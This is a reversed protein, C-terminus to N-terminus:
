TAWLIECVDDSSYGLMGLNIMRYALIAYYEDPFQLVVEKDGDYIVINLINDEQTMKDIDELAIGSKKNDDTLREFIIGDFIIGLPAVKVKIKVTTEEPSNSYGINNHIRGHDVIKMYIEVKDTLELLISNKSENSLTRMKMNRKESGNDKNENNKENTNVHNTRQIKESKKFNEQKSQWIDEHKVRQITKSSGDCIYNSDRSSIYCGLLKAHCSHAFTIKVDPSLGNNQQFYILDDDREMYSIDEYFLVIDDNGKLTHKGIKLLDSFVLADNTVIVYRDGSFDFESYGTPFVYTQYYKYIVIKAEVGEFFEDIKYERNNFEKKREKEKNYYHINYLIALFLLIISFFLLMADDNTM